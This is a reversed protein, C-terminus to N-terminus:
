PARRWRLALERLTRAPNGLVTSGPAVSKMVVAGAAVMAGAGIVLPRSPNGNSITSGAGIFATEEVIVYGSVTCSPALTTFNEIVVDHGISHMPMIQVHDGIVTNPGVYGKPSVMSGVGITTAPFLSPHADYLNISKGGAATVKEVLRRRLVGNGIPFLCPLHIYNRRWDDWSIVPREEVTFDLGGRVDDIFAVVNCIQPASSRLGVQFAVACSHGSSGYFTVDPIAQM